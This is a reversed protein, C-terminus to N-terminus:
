AVVLNSCAREGQDYPSPVESKSGFGGACANIHAPSAWGSRYCQHSYTISAMSPPGLAQKNTAGPNTNVSTCSIICLCGEARGGGGLFFNRSLYPRRLFKSRLICLQHKPGFLVAGDLECFVLDPIYSTGCGDLMGADEQGAAAVAEVISGYRGRGVCVSLASEGLHLKEHLRTRKEFCWWAMNVGRHGV